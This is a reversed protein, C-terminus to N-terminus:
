KKSKRLKSKPGYMAMFDNLMGIKQKENLAEMQKFTNDLNVNLHQQQTDPLQALPVVLLGDTPAIFTHSITMGQTILSSTVQGTSLNNTTTWLNGNTSHRTNTFIMPMPMEFGSSFAGLTSQNIVGSSFSGQHVISPVQQTSNVPQQTNLLTPVGQGLLNIPSLVVIIVLVRLM